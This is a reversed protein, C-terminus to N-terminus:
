ESEYKKEKKIWIPNSILRMSKYNREVMGFYKPKEITEYYEIRVYSSTLTKNFDSASLEFNIEKINKNEDCHIIKYLLSDVIILVNGEPINFLKLNFRIAGKLEIKGGMNINNETAFEMKSNGYAIFVNGIKLGAIIDKQSLTKAKIWTKLKGLEWYEHNDCKHSDSSAVGIIRYGRMLLNDWFQPYSFTNEKEPMCWIELLSIDKLDINQYRWSVFGSLPHNISIVAQQKKTEQIIKYITQKEIKLAACLEENDELLPNIWSSLGHVNFHGMPGSIEISKLVLPDDKQIIKNTEVWHSFTFHDTIAVFDLKEKKCKNFIERLTSRGTSHTSHVHLEGSYWTDKSKLIISKTYDNNIANIIEYNKYNEM